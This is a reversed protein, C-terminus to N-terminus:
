APARRARLRLEGGAVALGHVQGGKSGVAVVLDDGYRSEREIREALVVQQREMAVRVDRVQRARANEAERLEGPEHVYVRAPELQLFAERALDGFAKDVLEIGAADDDHDLGSRRQM